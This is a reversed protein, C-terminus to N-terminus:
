SEVGRVGDQISSTGLHARFDLFIPGSQACSRQAYMCRLSTKVHPFLKVGEPNAQYVLMAVTKSSQFGLIATTVLGTGVASSFDGFLARFM